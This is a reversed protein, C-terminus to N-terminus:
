LKLQEVESGKERRPVSFDAGIKVTLLILNENLNIEQRTGVYTFFQSVLQTKSALALCIALVAFRKFPSHLFPFMRIIVRGPM